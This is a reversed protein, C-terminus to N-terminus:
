GSATALECWCADLPDCAVGFRKRMLLTGGPFVVDLGDKFRKWAQRYALRFLKLALAATSMAEHDGGAALHPTLQGRSRQTKPSDFPDTRLVAKVGAFSRGAAALNTAAQTQAERIHQEVTAVVTDVDGPQGQLQRPPVVEYSLTEPTHAFYYAPRTAQRAGTKWDSPRTNFGPWKRYDAVLGDKVPNVYTYVLKDLVAAANVLLTACFSGAGSWVCDLRRNPFRKRYYEILCRAACANFDQLFESLRGELDTVVLHFHNSEVSIAHILIGKGRAAWALCYEMIQNVVGSPALLYLSMATTRTVLYTGGPLCM